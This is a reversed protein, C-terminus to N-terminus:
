GMLPLTFSFTSGEGVVSQVRVSGGQREILMRCIYLGLGLSSRPEEQRTEIGPVRYLRNFLHPLSEAPIGPGEDRVEVVGLPTPAREARVRVTVPRDAGSYKIANSLLNAIVQLIRGSDGQVIVDTAPAEIEVSRGSTGRQADAEQRCLATLNCPGVTLQLQGTEISAVDRLDRILREMREIGREIPDIHREDAPRGSDIQRRLVQARMKVSALPNALDHAVIRMLNVREQELRMRETVDRAVSVAGTIAGDADRLPAGSLSLARSGGRVTKVTVEATQSGTLTEGRLLRRAPLEDPDIPHGNLDSIQLTAVREEPSQTGFPAAEKAEDQGLMEYAAHNLRAVRGDKDYVFLGDALSEFIADVEQARATAEASVRALQANLARLQDELQRRVAMDRVVLVGGRLAGDKDAVPVGACNLLIDRGDLRAFLVDEMQAGGLREGRLIRSIPGEGMALPSGDPTRPRIRAMRQELPQKVYEPDNDLALLSRYASNVHVAMGREDFLIVGDTMAELIAYLEQARAVATTTALTLEANAERLRTELQRRETIDVIVSVAGILTGQEDHIPAASDLISKHQGNFTLIDVEAGQTVEGHQIARTLAWDEPGVPRGTAAWWATYRGYGALHNAIPLTEGWIARVEDNFSLAKGHADVISVGVPLVDLAAQLRAREVRERELAAAHQHESHQHETIESSVTIWERVSGDDNAVPVSTVLLERQTGDPRQVRHRLKYRSGSQVGARWVRLSRERDDPHLSEDPGLGLAIEGPEAGQAMQILAQNMTDAAWVRSGTMETMAKCQQTMEALRREAAAARQEAAAARQEAAALGANAGNPRSSAAPTRQPSKRAAHDAKQNSPKDHGSHM